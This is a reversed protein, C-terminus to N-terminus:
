ILFWGFYMPLTPPGHSISPAPPGVAAILQGIVVYLSGVCTLQALPVPLLAFASCNTGAGDSVSVLSLPFM